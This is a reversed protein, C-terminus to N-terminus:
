DCGGSDAERDSGDSGPTGGRARRVRRTSAVIEERRRQRRASRISVNRNTIWIVIGLVGFTRRAGKYGAFNKIAQGAWDQHISTRTGGFDPAPVWSYGGLQSWLFKSPLYM